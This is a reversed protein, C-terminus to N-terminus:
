LRLNKTGSSSDVRDVSTVVWSLHHFVKKGHVSLVAAVGARRTAPPSQGKMMGAPVRSVSVFVRACPNPRMVM